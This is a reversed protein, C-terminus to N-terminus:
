LKLIEKRNGYILDFLTNGVTTIFFVSVFGVAGEVGIGIHLQLM